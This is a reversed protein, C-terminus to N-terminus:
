KLETYPLKRGTRTWGMNDCIDMVTVFKHALQSADVHEFELPETKAYLAEKVAPIGSIYVHVRKLAEKGRVNKPMMAHVRQRLFLDPRSPHFPGHVPNCNDGIERLHVYWRLVQNRRGSIVAGKANIIVIHEGLLALKSIQSLLRGLIKNNADVVKWTPTKSVMM